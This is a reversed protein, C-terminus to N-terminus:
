HSLCWVNVYKPNMHIKLYMKLPWGEKLSIRYCVLKWARVVSISWTITKQIKASQLYVSIKKVLTRGDAEPLAYNHRSASTILPFLPKPWTICRSFFTGPIWIPESFPRDESRRNRSELQGFKKVVQRLLRGMKKGSCPAYKSTIGTGQLPICCSISM